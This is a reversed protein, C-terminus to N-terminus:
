KLSRSMEDRMRKIILMAELYAAVYRPISLRGNMWRSVTEDTVGLRRAFEYQRWGLTELAEQFEERGM